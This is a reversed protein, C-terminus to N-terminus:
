SGKPRADPALDKNAWYVDVKMGTSDAFGVSQLEAEVAVTGPPLDAKKVCDFSVSLKEEARVVGGFINGACVKFPAKKGGDDVELQKGAKDYFYLYMRGFLLNRTAKNVVKFAAGKDDIKGTYTLEVLRAQGKAECPEKFTGPGKSGAPCDPSDPKASPPPAPPAESATTAPRSTASPEAGSSCGFALGVACAAGLVLTRM